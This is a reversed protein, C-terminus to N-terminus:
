PARRPGFQLGFHDRILAYEPALAQRDEPRAPEPNPTRQLTVIDRTWEQGSALAHRRLADNLVQSSRFCSIHEEAWARPRYRGSEAVFATLERALDDEALLRGTQENVFVQSGVAAGRLLAAPTDAFLSEAVAVCSGERRSLIVSARAQCFAQAVAHYGQNSRVDFRDAVGYWRAIERITEATRGDQDQGILLLKLDRPMDRLAAFLAQHRKFKGFCAVMILDYPREARPVPTFLSPNVWSSAYLPVVILKDSIGRFVEPDRPHSILTFIADAPYLAPFAYSILNHPSGSPGVVLTYRDAFGRLDAISLLKVWQSEFAIYVVGKERPGVYPKLLAARPVHPDHFDAIHEAWDLPRGVLARVRRRIEAQIRAEAAPDTALRAAACRRQIARALAQPTESDIARGRWLEYQSYLDRVLPHYRLWDETELARRRLQTLM